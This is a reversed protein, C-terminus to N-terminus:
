QSRRAGDTTDTAVCTTFVPGGVGDRFILSDTSITQEAAGVIGGGPTGILAQFLSVAVVSETVAFTHNGDRLGELRSGTRTTISEADSPDITGSLALTSQARGMSDVPTIMIQSGTQSVMIMVSALLDSPLSVYQSTDAIVPNPL